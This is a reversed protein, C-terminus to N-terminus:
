KTGRKPREDLIKHEVQPQRLITGRKPREDLIKHEVQPQRLITGRKLFNVGVFEVM